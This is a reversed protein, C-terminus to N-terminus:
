LEGRHATIPHLLSTVRVDSSWLHSASCHLRIPAECIDSSLLCRVPKKRDCRCVSRRRHQVVSNWFSAASALQRRRGIWAIRVLHSYNARSDDDARAHASSRKIASAAQGSWDACTFVVCCRSLHQDARSTLQWGWKRTPVDAIQRAAVVASTAFSPIIVRM